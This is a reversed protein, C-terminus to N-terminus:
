PETTWPGMQLGGNEVTIPARWTRPNSGFEGGKAPTRYLSVEVADSLLHILNFSNCGNEVESCGASGGGLISVPGLSWKSVPSEPLEYVDERWLFPRHRHGHLILDVGRTAAKRLIEKSDLAMGFGTYYEDPQEVDETLTVHHHLAIIRLALSLTDDWGLVRTVNALQLPTVRGMGALFNKGTELSSSNLACVDVVLGAPTIYRRGMSLAENPEHGLLGRYFKRYAAKADDPAEDVSGGRSYTAGKKKTWKIDHNGPVVVVHDRDIDLMGMLATLSRRAEAFEKPDAMWTLDGTVVILGIDGRIDSSLTSEIAAHLTPQQDDSLLKWAHKDRNTGLSYHLDSIHLIHNGPAKIPDSSVPKGVRLSPAIFRETSDEDKSPRVVWITSDMARLEDSDPIVKGKLRALQAVPIGRLPPPTSYSYVGFFKVPDGFTKIRLWAYSFPSSRYYPPILKKEDQAVMPRKGRSSPQLVGVVLALRVPTEDACEGDPDWGSDFLGVWVGGPNSTVEEALDPWVDPRSGESPRRWWGWWCEGRKGIVKQHEVITRQVLDRYRFLYRVPEDM